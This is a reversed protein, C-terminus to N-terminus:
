ILMGVATSIPRSDLFKLNSLKYIVYLRYHRYDEEDKAVLENPCAANGLLSLYTLRPYLRAIIALLRDIDGIRNKNLMLTDLAPLSPLSSEETIFNNDLNLTTAAQFDELHDATTLLNHSLDILTVATGFRASLDAPISTLDLFSGILQM